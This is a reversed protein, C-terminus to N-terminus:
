LDEGDCPLPLANVEAVLEGTVAQPEADGVQLPDVEHLIPIAPDHGHIVAPVGEQRGGEEAQRQFVSVECM